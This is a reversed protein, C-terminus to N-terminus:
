PADDGGVVTITAWNQFLGPWEVGESDVVTYNVELFLSCQIHKGKSIGMCSLVFDDARPTCYWDVSWAEKESLRKFPFESRNVYSPDLKVSKLVVYSNHYFTSANPYGSINQVTFLFTIKRSYNTVWQADTTLHIGVVAGHCVDTWDFCAVSDDGAFREVKSVKSFIIPSLLAIYVFATLLLCAILASFFLPTVFRTFNTAVPKIPRRCWNWLRKHINM